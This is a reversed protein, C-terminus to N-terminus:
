IAVKKMRSNTYPMTSRQDLGQQPWLARTNKREDLQVSDIFEM